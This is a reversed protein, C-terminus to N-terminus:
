SALWAMPSPLRALASAGVHAYRATTRISRHGLAVQLLRIDVGAEVLHAAFAHRLSHPTIRGAVCASCGAAKLAIRVSGGGLVGARRSPFMLPPQPRVVRVYEAVLSGLRADLPAFRERGGKGNRVHILGRAADFDGAQLRCAESLRLGTAYMLTFLVRYRADRVALLVRQVEARSLVRVPPAEETPWALFSVAVSSGLTRLFLFRLAAFHQRLRSKSLRRTRLEAVWARVQEQGSGDPAGGHFEIFDRVSLAYAIRTRVSLGALLMDDNMRGRVDRTARALVPDM